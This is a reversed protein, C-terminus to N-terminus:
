RGLALAGAALPSVAIAACMSSVFNLMNSVNGLRRTASRHVVVPAVLVACLASITTFDVVVVNVRMEVNGNIYAHLIPILTCHYALISRFVQSVLNYFASGRRSADNSYQISTHFSVGSLVKSWSNTCPHCSSIITSRARAGRRHNTPSPLPPALGAQSDPVGLLSSPNAQQSSKPFNFRYPLVVACVYLSWLCITGPRFAVWM